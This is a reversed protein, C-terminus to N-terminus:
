PYTGTTVGKTFLCRKKPCMQGRDDSLRISRKCINNFTKRNDDHPVYRLMVICM